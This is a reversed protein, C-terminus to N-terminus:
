RNAVILPTRRGTALDYLRDDMRDVTVKLEAVNAKVAAVEAEVKGIREGLGTQVNGLKADFGATLEVKLNDIREELRKTSMRTVAIMLGALTVITTITQSDM